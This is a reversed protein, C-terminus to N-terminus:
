LRAAERTEAPIQQRPQRELLAESMALLEGGLAELEDASLLKRVLAFLQGEEMVHAHHALSEKVVALKADFREDDPDLELMDALTRKVVLHEETSELLLEETQSAMVSPYFLKEEIASHAAVKDALTKFLESKDDPDACAEIQEILDDVEEHQMMLLSLADCNDAKM